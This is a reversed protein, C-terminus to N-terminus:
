DLEGADARRAQAAKEKQQAMDTEYQQAEKRIEDMQADSAEIEAQLAAM